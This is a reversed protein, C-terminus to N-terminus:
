SVTVYTQANKRNKGVKLLYPFTWTFIKCWDRHKKKSM